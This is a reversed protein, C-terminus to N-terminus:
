SALMKGFQLPCFLPLFFSDFLRLAISLLAILAQSYGSDVGRYSLAKGILICYSISQFYFIQWKQCNTFLIIRSILSSLTKLNAAVERFCLIKCFNEETVFLIKCFYNRFIEQKFIKSIQQFHSMPLLDAGFRNLQNISKNIRLM